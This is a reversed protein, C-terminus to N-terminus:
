NCKQFRGGVFTFTMSQQFKGGGIYTKHATFTRLVCWAPVRGLDGTARRLAYDVDRLLNTATQREKEPITATAFTDVLTVSDLAITVNGIIRQTNASRAEATSPSWGLVLALVFAVATGLVAQM